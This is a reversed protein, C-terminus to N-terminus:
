YSLAASSAVDRVIVTNTAEDFTVTGRPSLLAKIHEAMDKAKAYNVPIVRTTLPAKQLRQEARNLADLEQQDLTAQTTVWIVNGSRRMGLGKTKLIVDLAQDWPVNKLKLTVSGKVDEGYVFNNGSVDALLRLVNGLDAAQLDVTIKKGRYSPPAAL